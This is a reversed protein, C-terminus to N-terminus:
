EVDEFAQNLVPYERWGDYDFHWWEEAYVTFGNREMATRLLERHWRQLATGGPYDPRSRATAEDYTGVMEVPQGTALDYLTLDVAAGRNHRSGNAPNAVLWRLSDPTADWFVRTVYWPRYADHVLLGYGQPLLWRHAQLLADAAPRQLFARAQSYFATGVFNNTTAYRIDFRITGDLTGLDVLDPTKLGAPQAPPSAARAERLLEAVPRIPSIKLQGGDAPGVARRPFEIGNLLVARGKGASDRRVVLREGAYLGRGPFAFVSDDVQDLPYAFYWEILVRLRGLDEYLYLTNHDWGYEGILGQWEPPPPGPMPPPDKVFLQEGWAISTPSLPTFSNGFERVDDVVLNPGSSRLRVPVGGAPVLLLEGERERVEFRRRDSFFHGRMERVQGPPVPSTLVPEPLPRGAREARM